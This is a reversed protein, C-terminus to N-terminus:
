IFMQQLLAKKQEQLHELKRKHLTILHDLDSFFEGIKDQERKDKPFYFESGVLEM